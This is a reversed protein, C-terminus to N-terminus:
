AYFHSIEKCVLAVDQANLNFHLPLRLLRESEVTTHIDKGYLHGHKQGGPSSHLPIYHSASQIHKEKLHGILKTREHVDKVKIYFMHGNHECHEPIFPLDILKAQALPLLTQYYQNWLALRKQNIEDAKELQELLVMANLESPLFSSGLSLWTYKDVEGRLFASRDTGKERIIESKKLLDNNNIILLGGEGSHYNKTEHFSYTGLQGFTGLQKRKYTSMMGQAADEFLYLNHKKAIKVITDMECAVGAYHVIAIARTKETIAGEILKEDINMTDPRVDVFVIKAGRLAFANATSVFTYSPVIVEDGPKIDILIAMMELAHTCSTTLLSKAPYLKHNFWEHCKKTYPGDGSYKGSSLSFVQQAPIYPSNFLIM